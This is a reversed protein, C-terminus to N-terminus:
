KNVPSRGISYYTFGLRKMKKPDFLNRGDFILAQNLAETMRGFNPRRFENWETVILLADAGELADYNSEAFEVNFMDDALIEKAHNMAEPDFAVISAGLESLEKIVTISPAERMDDTKPKFSLGWLALKKGKVNAPGGFHEVVKKHWSM